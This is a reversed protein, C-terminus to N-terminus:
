GSSTAGASARPTSACAATRSRPSRRARGARGDEHVVAALDAARDARRLAALVPGRAHLARHPQDPGGRAARRRGGRAGGARDDRRVERRGRDHPRGRRDGDARRPRAQPRDRLREPRPGPTIKLAGTGFEPKVYDDAIIRLRRGVIPLIATEGVLRTYRDDDPHVAIATDGLMTEPRVTAVTVSGHGSALPYDVYYLTDTVERDEVELDSIASRSGPDWNVLYNDRYILGKEYLTVFVKLVARVYATTSRSASTRTTAPRASASTSTSSRTATSSAGAGCASSSRRAASRRAARARPSAAAARGADADRHRRPRHRPDVEDAQRAHARLPDAHGPDIRQACPGHAARRHREAAPDRDLLERGRHGRAGPPLARVGALARLRAGRERGPEYRTRDELAM